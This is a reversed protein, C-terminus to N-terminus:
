RARVQELLGMLTVGTPAPFGQEPGLVLLMSNGRHHRHIAPPGALGRMLMIEVSDAEFYQDRACVRRKVEPDLWSIRAGVGDPVRSDLTFPGNTGDHIMDALYALIRRKCWERGEAVLERSRLSDVCGWPPM